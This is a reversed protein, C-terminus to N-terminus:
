AAARSSGGCTGSTTPTRSSRARRVTGLRSSGCSSRLLGAVVEVPVGGEDLLEVVTSGGELCRQQVRVSVGAAMAGSPRLPRGWSGVSTSADLHGFLLRQRHGGDGAVGGDLNLLADLIHLSDRPTGPVVMQGIGAVQDNVANLWTIGRKFGFSEPSRRRRASRASPSSSGCDTSRPWCGMGWFQVIPVESQAEILLANAAAITDARM